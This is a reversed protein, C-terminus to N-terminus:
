GLHEFVKDNIEEITLGMLILDHLDGKVIKVSEMEFEPEVGGEYEGDVLLTFEDSQKKNFQLYVSVHM